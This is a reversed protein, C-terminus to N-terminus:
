QSISLLQYLELCEGYRAAKFYNCRKICKKKENDQQSEQRRRTSNSDDIILIQKFMQRIIIEIHKDSIYFSQS